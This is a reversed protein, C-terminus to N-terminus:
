TPPSPLTPPSAPDWIDALEPQEAVLLRWIEDDRKGSALSIHNKLAEVTATELPVGRLGYFTQADTIALLCVDIVPTWFELMIRRGGPGDPMLDGGTFARIWSREYGHISSSLVRFLPPGDQGAEKQITAEDLGPQLQTGEATAWYGCAVFRDRLEDREGLVTSRHAPDDHAEERLSDLALNAARVVRVRDRLGPKMVFRVKCSAELLVRSIALLTRTPADGEALIALWLLHDRLATTLVHATDIVVEQETDSLGKHWQGDPQLPVDNWRDPPDGGIGRVLKGHVRRLWEGVQPIGPRVADVHQQRALSPGTGRNRPERGAATSTSHIM